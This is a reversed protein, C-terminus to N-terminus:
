GTAFPNDIDEYAKRVDVRTRASPTLGFEASMARITRAQQAMVTLAPNRVVRDKDTSSRGAILVDTRAVIAAARDHVVHAVALTYLAHRDCAANIGMDTLEAALEDFIARVPEDSTDPCIMPGPRPTPEHQNLKSHQAGNLLRLRTPKPARGPKM